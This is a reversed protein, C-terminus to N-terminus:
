CIHCVTVEMMSPPPDGEVIGGDVPLYVMVRRFKTM